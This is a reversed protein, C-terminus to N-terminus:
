KCFFVESYLHIARDYNKKKLEEVFFSNHILEGFLYIDNNIYRKQIDFLIEIAKNVGFCYGYPELLKVYM